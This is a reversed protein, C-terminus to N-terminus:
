KPKAVPHHGAILPQVDIPENGNIIVETIPESANWEILGYAESTEPTYIGGTYEQLPTDEGGNVSISNSGTPLDVFYGTIDESM